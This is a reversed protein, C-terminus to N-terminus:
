KLLFITDNARFSNFDSEEIYFIEELQKDNILTIKYGMIERGVIRGSNESGISQVNLATLAKSKVRYKALKKIVPAEPATIKQQSKEDKSCAYM